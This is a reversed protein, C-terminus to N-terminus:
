VAGLRQIAQQTFWKEYMANNDVNYVNEFGGVVRDAHNIHSMRNRQIDFCQVYMWSWLTSGDAEKVEVKGDPTKFKGFGAEWDVWPKMNRDYRLNSIFEYNRTDVWIRRLGVPARPYHTPKQDIVIVEPALEFDTNYFTQNEAGGHVDPQWGPKDGGNWITSCASLFPGRHSIKFDGWTLVPDGAGWVDSLFWTVGPILPEFRQSAPFTRTRRFQPLYGILAPYKRQDDYWTSMFSTGAVDQTNTFYVTQYRLIDKRNKFFTGDVRGTGQLEAWVLDYNYSPKGDPGIDREKAAYQSYDHRGWSVALNFQGEVGTKADPFPLGGVWPGGTSKTVLNGNADFAALVGDKQNKVTKDYYAQPFWEPPNTNSAKIRIKRGMTKIQQYVVPDVLDKVVDVNDATIYDGTKIKGKTYVDISLLEDPYAKSLDKGEALVKSLPMLLGASAGVAAKKMLERRGWNFDYKRIRM